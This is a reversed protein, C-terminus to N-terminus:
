GIPCRRCDLLMPALRTGEPANAFPEDWGETFFTLLHIPKWNEEPAPGLISERILELPGCSIRPLPAIISKRNM